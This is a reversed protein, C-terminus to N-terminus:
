KQFQGFQLQYVVEEQNSEIKMDSNPYASCLLVYGQERVDPGLGAADSQDVTGELIKAACTTCVGASCSYPLEIGQELAIGLITKDEPVQITHTEGDHLIEVNYVAVM